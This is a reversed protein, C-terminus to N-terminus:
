APAPWCCSPSPWKWWSSSDRCINAVDAAAPAEVATRSRPTSTSNRSVEANAAKINAHDAIHGFVTFRRNERKEYEDKLILPKWVETNRPFDMRAPMVGIITTPEEDIRVTRGIVSLDKGYRNEWVKYSLIAVPPAGTQEDAPQFDRGAIPKQGIVSFTNASVRAGNYGEPSATHDSINASVETSAGVADFSKVQARLDRYNPYSFARNSRPKSANTSVIYLVKDSNAFPLNKFLIANALSFVTANVGIGLALATVAVATFGPNKALTRLGFRVDEWLSM